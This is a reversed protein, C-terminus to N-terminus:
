GQKTGLKESARRFQGNNGSKTNVDEHHRQALIHVEWTKKSEACPWLLCTRRGNNALHLIGVDVEQVVAVNVCFHFHLLNVGAVVHPSEVLVEQNVHSHYVHM